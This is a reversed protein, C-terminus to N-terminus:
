YGPFSEFQIFNDPLGTERIVALMAEVMLTPECLLAGLKRSDHSQM